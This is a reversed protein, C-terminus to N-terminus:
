GQGRPADTVRLRIQTGWPDRTVIEDDSMREAPYGAGALSEGAASVSAADPLEITWELLRADDSAPPTAGSGAWTNTGLHHHYGGAGLFLAGPYKWTIRDFGLAGSFFAAGQELNGIHLHVHGIVTGAPMGTWPADGAARLLDAVDVPDTAIMLERGVRTWSSRPRDAYVEIGLGDPDTLYFAESVLHDGAGARVGTEALHRVFRGLDERTPLLVAFHYLGLRARRSATRAGPRERLEVLVRDDGHAALTARSAERQVVRLGLTDQYFALSRALDAIQLRVTGLRTADPLRYGRPAEGYSGPTAPQAGAADGFIDHTTVGM